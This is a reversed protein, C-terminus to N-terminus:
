KTESEEAFFRKSKEMDNVLEMVIASLPVALIIGLFGALRAGVLLALIVLLPPVGVIKRMILPYILHSEFQQIIIYFGLITLGVVPSTSFGIFAAPVAALIPGFVPILEFIAAIIALVLAYKINLITLGLFVFVGMLLGLFIQGQMWFGIKSRSRKWLDLIYKEHKLPVVLALLNAVGDEQVALYFSFVIILIFDLAGGVLMQTMALFGSSTGSMIDQVGPLFTSMNGVVVDKIYDLYEVQTDPLFGFVDLAKVAKPILGVFNAFEQLFNPLFLFVIAFVIIFLILYIAIVAIVRPLRFDMLRRAMPEIASALVVSTLLVLVIDSLWYLLYVCLLALIAKIASGLTISININPENKM